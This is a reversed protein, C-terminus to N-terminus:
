IMVVADGRAHELGATLAPQHWFNRSLGLVKVREDEAALQALVAATQDRSGDDVVVLEWDFGDLAAVVREYLVRANDQEDHMPTVVSLLGLERRPATQVAPEM